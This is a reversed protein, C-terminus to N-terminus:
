KPFLSFSNRDRILSIITESGPDLPPLNIVYQSYDGSGQIGDKSANLKIKSKRYSRPLQFNLALNESLTAHKNNITIQFATDLEVTKIQLDNRELVWSSIEALTAIWSNEKTIHALAVDVSGIFEAKAIYQSHYNFKYLGGCDAILDYNAIAMEGMRQADTLGFRAMLDYDDLECKPYVVINGDQLRASDYPIVRPYFQNPDEDAAVYILNCAKAALLTNRDYSITPPRLGVPRPGFREIFDQAATIRNIQVEIPQGGFADHVDGHIGLESGIAKMQNIVDPFKAGLCVLVNFTTKIHYKNIIPFINTVEDFQDEIDGHILIGAKKGNPWPMVGSVGHGSLWYIQDRIMTQAFSKNRPDDSFDLLDAGFWIVRGGDSNERYIMGTLRPMSFPDSEVYEVEEAWYGIPKTKSSTNLFLVHKSPTFTMMLGPPINLTGPVGYRLLISTSIDPVMDSLEPKEGILKSLGNYNTFKGHVDYCGIEGALYLGGGDEVFQSLANLQTPLLYAAYNVVVVDINKKVERFTSERTYEYKIPISSIESPPYLHFPNANAPITAGNTRWETVDPEIILVRIESNAAAFVVCPLVLGVMVLLGFIFIRSQLQKRKM